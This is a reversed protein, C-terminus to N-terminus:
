SHMHPLLPSSHADDSWSSENHVGNQASGRNRHTDTHMCTMPQCITHILCLKEEFSAAAPHKPSRPRTHKLVGEWDMQLLYLCHGASNRTVCTQKEICCKRCAGSSLTPHSSESEKCLYISQSSTWCFCPCSFANVPSCIYYSCTQVPLNFLALGHTQAGNRWIDTHRILTKGLCTLDTLWCDELCHRSPVWLNPHSLVVGAHRSM